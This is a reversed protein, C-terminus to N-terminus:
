LESKSSTVGGLASIAKDWWHIRRVVGIGRWDSAPGWAQRYLREALAWATAELIAQSDWESTVMLGRTAM